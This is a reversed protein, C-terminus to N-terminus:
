TGTAPWPTWSRTPPPTTRRAPCASCAWWPRSCSSPRCITNAPSSMSIGRTRVKPRFVAALQAATLDSVPVDDLQGALHIVATLPNKAPISALLNEVAARDATDCAAVIVEAGLESLDAVIEAAGDAAPGSRSVLLLHRAGHRAVLHRAVCAGLTGTGGAILVTGDGNLPAPFTLVLKGTHRARALHHVAERARRVHWATVPLPHLTGAEFMAHLESLVQQIRQEPVDALNLPQYSLRQHATAVDGPDRYIRRAWSSSAAVPHWCDCRPM